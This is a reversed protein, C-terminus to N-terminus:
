SNLTQVIHKETHKKTNLLQSDTFSNLYSFSLYYIIFNQQAHGKLVYYFATPLSVPRYNGCL